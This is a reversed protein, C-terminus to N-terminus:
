SDPLNMIPQEGPEREIQWFFLIKHDRDMSISEVMISHGCPSFRFDTIDGETQLLGRERWFGDSTIGLVVLCSRDDVTLGAFLYGGQNFVLKSIRLDGDPTQQSWEGHQKQVRINLRGRDDTCVITNGDPSLKPVTASTSNGAPPFFDPEHLYTFNHQCNWVGSGNLQWVMAAGERHMVFLSSDTNFKVTSQSWLHFENHFYGHDKIDPVWRNDDTLHWIDFSSGGHVVLYRSNPSFTAELPRGRILRHQPRPIKIAETWQGNDGLSFVIVFNAELFHTKNTSSQWTDKFSTIMHQSDPSFEITGFGFFFSHIESAAEANAYVTADLIGNAKWSGDNQKGFIKIRTEEDFDNIVIHKSDPSFSNWKSRPFYGKIEWQGDPKQGLITSNTPYGHYILSKGDPLIQYRIRTSFIDQGGCDGHPFLNEVTMRQAISWDGSKDRQIFSLLADKAGYHGFVLGGSSPPDVPMFLTNGNFLEIGNFCSHLSRRTITIERSWSGDNEATLVTYDYNYNCNNSAQLILCSHNDNLSYSIIRDESNFSNKLVFNLSQAHITESRLQSAHYACIAPLNETFYSQEAIIPIKSTRLHHILQPNAICLNRYFLQENKSLRGYYRAAEFLGHKDLVTYIRRSALALNYADKLPLYRSIQLLLEPPLKAITWSHFQASQEPMEPNTESLFSACTKEQTTPMLM